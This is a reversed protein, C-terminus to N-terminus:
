LAEMVREMECLFREGNISADIMQNAFTSSGNDAGVVQHVLKVRLVIMHFRLLITILKFNARM